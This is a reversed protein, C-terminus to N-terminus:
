LVTARRADEVAVVADDRVTNVYVSTFEAEVQGGEGCGEVGAHVPLPSMPGQIQDPPRQAKYTRSYHM